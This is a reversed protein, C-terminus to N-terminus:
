PHTIAKPVSVGFATGTYGHGLEPHMGPDNVQGCIFCTATTGASASGPQEGGILPRHDTNFM